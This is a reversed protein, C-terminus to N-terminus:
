ESVQSAVTGKREVYDGLNKCFAEAKIDWELLLRVHSLHCILLLFLLMFYHTNVM